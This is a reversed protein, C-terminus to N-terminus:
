KGNAVTATNIINDWVLDNEHLSAQEVFSSLSFLDRVNNDSTSSNFPYLDHVRTRLM